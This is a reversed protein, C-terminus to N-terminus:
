KERKLLKETKNEVESRNKEDPTFEVVLGLGEYIKFDFLEKPLYMGTKRAILNVVV